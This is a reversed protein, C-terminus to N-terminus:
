EAESKFGGHAEIEAIVEATTVYGYVTSTLDDPSEAKARLAETLPEASPFGCEWMSYDGDIDDRPASYKGWGAQVSIHFGDACVVRRRPNRRQPHHIGIAPFTMGDAPALEAEHLSRMHDQFEQETIPM